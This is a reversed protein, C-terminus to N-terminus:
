GARKDPAVDFWTPTGGFTLKSWDTGDVGAYGQAEIWNSHSYFDELEHLSMGITTLLQLPSNHVRAARALSVTNRMLREWEKQARAVNYIDDRGSDFHTRGAAKVVTDSWNERPGLLSGVVGTLMDAHGSQPISKANSYLDVFWNNVNAVDVATNGFGEATLADRSIDSHPGTDFADASAPALLCTLLVLGLTARPRPM